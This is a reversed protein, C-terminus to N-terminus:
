PLIKKDFGRVIKITSEIHDQQTYLLSSCDPAVAVDPSNVGLHSRANGIQVAAKGRAAFWFTAAPQQDDDVSFFVGDTCVSWSSVPSARPMGPLTALGTGDLQSSYISGTTDSLFLTHDHSLAHTAFFPQKAIMRPEGSPLLRSWVDVEGSRNSNYYIGQGEPMWSPSREEFNNKDVLTWRGDSIAVTVLQSNGHM